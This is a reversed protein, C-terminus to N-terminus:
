KGNNEKWSPHIGKEILAKKALRITSKPLQDGTWDLALAVALSMEGVDLFHSPNWDSFGSVRIVEENIRDLMIPDKEIFYVMGLMNIRYLVERSVSLLRIGTLKREPLPKELVSEANLKIAQYINKIVPDSQIKDRLIKEREPNLVLRPSEKRLHNKLYRLSMPNELTPLEERPSPNQAHSEIASIIFLWLLVAFFLPSNTSM